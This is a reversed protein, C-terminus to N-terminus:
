ALFIFSRQKIKPLVLSLKFYFIKLKNLVFCFYIYSIKGLLNDDNMFGVSEKMAVMSRKAMRMPAM